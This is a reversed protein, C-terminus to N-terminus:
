PPSPSTPASRRRGMMLPSPMSAYTWPAGVYVGFNYNTYAAPLTPTIDTTTNAALALVVRSGADANQGAAIINSPNIWPGTSEWAYVWFSYFLVNTAGPEGGTLLEIRAQATETVTNTWPLCFSPIGIDGPDTQTSTVAVHVQPYYPQALDSPANTTYTNTHSYTGLEADYTWDGRREVNTQTGLGPAAPWVARNSSSLDGSNPPGFPSWFCIRDNASTETGGQTLSWDVNNRDIVIHGESFDVAGYYDLWQYTWSNTRVFSRTYSSLRWSPPVPDAARTPTPSLGTAFLCALPIARWLSPCLSGPWFLRFLRRPVSTIGM